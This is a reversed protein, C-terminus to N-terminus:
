GCPVFAALGNNLPKIGYAGVYMHMYAHAHMYKSMLLYISSPPANATSASSFEATVPSLWTFVFVVIHLYSINVVYIRM